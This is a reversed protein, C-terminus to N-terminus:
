YSLNSIKCKSVLTNRLKKDWRWLTNYSRSVFPSLAMAVKRFSMALCRVFLSYSLLLLLGLVVLCTWCLFVDFGHM